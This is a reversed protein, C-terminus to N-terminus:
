IIHFYVLMNKECSQKKKANTHLFVWEMIDVIEFETYGQICNFINTHHSLYMTNTKKLKFYYVM